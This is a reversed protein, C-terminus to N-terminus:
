ILIACYAQRLTALPLFLELPDDPLLIFGFQEYYQKANMDKADVFFGIIGLNESVTIVREIANVMLLKGLGQRQKKASIALRALKAAPAIAPYKKAYKQPLKEVKIECAALTFFGLIVAPNQDDILVFTRSIGKNIHQRAINKLYQNLEDVGCDFSARDHSKSLLEIKLM